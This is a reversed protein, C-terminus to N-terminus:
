AHTYTIGNPTQISLLCHLLLNDHREGLTTLTRADHDPRASANALLVAGHTRWEGWREQAAGQSLWVVLMVDNNM